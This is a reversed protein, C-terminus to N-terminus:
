RFGLIELFQLIVIDLGEKIVDTPKSQKFQELLNYTKEIQRTRQKVAHSFWQSRTQNKTVVAPNKYRSRMLVTSINSHYM